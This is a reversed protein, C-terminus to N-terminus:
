TRHLQAAGSMEIGNAPRLPPVEGADIRRLGIAISRGDHRPAMRPGGYAM